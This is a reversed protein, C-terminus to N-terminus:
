FFKANNLERIAEKQTESLQFSCSDDDTNANSNYNFATSDTCGTMVAVCSGDNTNANENYNFATSDTCGSVIVKKPSDSSSSCGFVGLIIIFISINKIIM